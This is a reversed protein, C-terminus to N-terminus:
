DKAHRDDLPVHDEILDLIVDHSRQMTGSRAVDLVNEILSGRLAEDDRIRELANVAAQASAPEILLGARGDGLAARVGGVDTGVIPLGAAAAEFLVQPLGETFSVHLFAHASRYMSNLAQGNAVHGHMRIVDELDAQRSREAMAETMPGDGVVDLRWRADRAHLAGLVDILLLPNKEPDLRGVSLIRLEGSTWDRNHADDRGVIDEDGVLSIGVARVHNRRATGYHRALDAGVVVTPANRAMARYALEHAWAVPMAWVRNFGSVRGAIYRPFDQRVGLMVPVGRRRATRAFAISLPHPGFLWAVDISDMESAFVSRARRMSRLMAGAHAVSEYHPLAIFRVRDAPIPYPARMGDESFRGFLVVEGVRPALDTIFKVVAQDASLGEGDSHYVFDIYVGIRLHSSSRPLDSM